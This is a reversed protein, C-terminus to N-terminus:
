EERLLKAPKGALCCKTSGCKSCAPKDHPTKTGAENHVWERDLLNVAYTKTIRNFVQIEKPHMDSLKVLGLRLNAEAEVMRAIAYADALDESTQRNEKSAKPGMPVNYKGFDEGWREKVAREMEDKQCTGDHATWMKVSTPDHLRFKVGRFWCLIRAIGGVEGLYHSQHEMRIAYDEIGVFDPKSQILVKKDLFEEWFALRVMGKIHRDKTDPLKLRTGHQKSREASGAADTVYWFNTMKGDTLEVVAGHNMSLDIGLVRM